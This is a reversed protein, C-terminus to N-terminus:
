AYRRGGELRLFAFHVTGGIQHLPKWPPPDSPWARSIGHNLSLEPKEGRIQPILSRSEDM